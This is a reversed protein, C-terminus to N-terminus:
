LNEKIWKAIEEFPADQEDNMKILKDQWNFQETSEMGLYKRLTNPLVTGSTGENFDFGDTNDGLVWEGGHGQSRVVECLVGLCCYTNRSRLADKGQKYKGSRLAEIWKVKIESNM